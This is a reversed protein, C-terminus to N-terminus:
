IYILKFLFSILLLLHGGDPAPVALDEGVTDVLHAQTDALDAGCLHLEVRKSFVNSDLMAEPIKM